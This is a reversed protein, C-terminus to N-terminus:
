AGRTLNLLQDRSLVTGPREVLVRLLRFEASSLSVAVAGAKRLERKELDLTWGDFAYCPARRSAAAPAMRALRRLLARIRALLEGPDFPKVVYDDAGTELGHVLDARAAMATLLIVPIVSTEALHRCLSLGDE